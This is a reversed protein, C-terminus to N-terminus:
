LVHFHVCITECTKEKDLSWSRRLNIGYYPAAAFDM